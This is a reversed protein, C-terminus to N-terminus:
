QAWWVPLQHLLHVLGFAIVADLLDNDHTRGAAIEVVEIHVEPVVSSVLNNRERCGLNGYHPGTKVWRPKRPRHVLVANRDVGLLSELIEDPLICHIEHGEGVAVDGIVVEHV